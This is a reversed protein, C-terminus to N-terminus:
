RYSGGLEREALDFGSSIKTPITYRSLHAMVFYWLDSLKYMYKILTQSWPQCVPKLIPSKGTMCIVTKKSNVCLAFKILRRPHRLSLMYLIIEPAQAWNTSHEGPMWSVRPDMKLLGAHYYMGQGLVLYFCSFKTIWFGRSLLNLTLRPYMHSGTQFPFNSTRHSWIDSIVRDLRVTRPMPVSPSNSSWCGFKPNVGMRDLVIMWLRSKTNFTCILVSLLTHVNNNM